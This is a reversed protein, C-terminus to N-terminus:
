SKSEALLRNIDSIAQETSSFRVAKMGIDTAGICYREQDDVLLCDTVNVGLREAIVKYAEPQPKIYGSEYSLAVADFLAVQQPNFMESLWNEAANSLMGIKYIPKLTKIYNFLQSDAVHDEIQRHAENNTVGALTAVAKIFDHYSILGADSQKNLDTADQLLQQDHGFYKSKFPLWGDSTLVGFCDFVVAKIM